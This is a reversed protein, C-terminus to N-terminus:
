KYQERIDILGNIVDETWGDMRKEFEPTKFEPKVGLGYVLSKLASQKIKIYNGKDTIHNFTIWNVVEDYIRELIYMTKYNDYGEGQGIKGGLSSIYLHAWEIQNRIITREDEMAGIKVHSTKIAIWGFKVAAFFLIVLFIVTVLIVVANDSTLAAKIAEWM